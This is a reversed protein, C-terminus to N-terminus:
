LRLGFITVDDTQLENGQGIWNKFETEILIGQQQMEEKSISELLKKLKQSSFKKSDKGGFQDKYGDSSLYIATQPNYNYHHLDFNNLHNAIRGGIGRKTGKFEIM